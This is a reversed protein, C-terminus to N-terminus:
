RRQGDLRQIRIKANLVDMRHNLDNKEQVTFVRGSARYAAELGVIRRFEARLAAAENRTLAGNRVGQDIRADLQAQRQNINLWGQDNRETKIRVALANMRRDLDAKEQLTFVGGSRRYAAELGVIQRFEARLAAAENRNLAGTGVGQDIRHDLQAQRQNISVWAPAAFAPAAAGALTAIALASAFLTKM